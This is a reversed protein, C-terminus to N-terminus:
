APITATLDQALGRRGAVGEIIPYRLFWGDGLPTYRGEDPDGPRPVLAPPQVGTPAHVV